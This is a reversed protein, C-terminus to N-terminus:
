IHTSQHQSEEPSSCFSPHSSSFHANALPMSGEPRAELFEDALETASGRPRDVQKKWRKQQRQVGIALEAALCAQLSVEQQMERLRATLIHEELTFCFYFPPPCNSKSVDSTTKAM